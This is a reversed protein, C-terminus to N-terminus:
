NRWFRYTSALNNSEEYSKGEFPYRELYSDPKWDQKKYDKASNQPFWSPTNTLTLGPATFGEKGSCNLFMVAILISVLLVLLYIKKYVM